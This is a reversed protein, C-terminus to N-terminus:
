INYDKWIILYENRDDGGFIDCNRPGVRDTRITRSIKGKQIAEDM